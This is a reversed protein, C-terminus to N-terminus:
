MGGGDNTRLITGNAGVATGSNADTFSVSLLNESTGSTKRAWTAGGNTTRLITGNQGVATGRNADTFSVGLLLNLQRLSDQKYWGTQPLTITDDNFETPDLDLCASLMCLSMIGILVSMISTKLSRHSM